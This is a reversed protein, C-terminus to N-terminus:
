SPRTRTHFIDESTTAVPCPWVEDILAALNKVGFWITLAPISRVSRTHFYSSTSVPPAPDKDVLRSSWPWLAETSFRATCAGEDLIRDAEESRVTPRQLVFFASPGATGSDIRGVDLLRRLSEFV